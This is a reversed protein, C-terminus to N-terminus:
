SSADRHRASHRDQRGRRQGQQLSSPDVRAGATRRARRPGTRALRRRRRPDRRWGGGRACRRQRARGSRAASRQLRSSSRPRVTASPTRAISLHRLPLQHHRRGPRHIGQGRPPGRRARPLRGDLRARRARRVGVVEARIFGRAIDSHIEGAALQASTGRPFRGPAASTRASRSSRFTASCITAPRPDVRDLGSEKLGSIRSSRRPTRRTSSRSRSSSRRASPSRRRHRSAVPVGDPRGGRRGADIDTRRERRLQAEDLNIVILLPKASLFQFGRLRKLDDGALDLARLPRGEELAARCVTLM